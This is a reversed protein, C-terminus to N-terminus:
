HPIPPMALGLYTSVHSIGSIAYVEVSNWAYQTLRSGFDSPDSSVYVWSTVDESEPGSLPMCAVTAKAIFTDMLRASCRVYKPIGSTSGSTHFMIQTVMPDEAKRDPVLHTASNYDRIQTLKVSPIIKLRSNM